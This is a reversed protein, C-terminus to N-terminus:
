RRGHDAGPRRAERHGGGRRARGRPGARLPGPGRARGGRGAGRHRGAGPGRPRPLCGARLGRRRPRPGRRAGGRLDPDPQVPAAPLHRHGPRRGRHGPGRRPRRGARHSPARLQGPGAGRRGRGQTGPPAPRRPLRGARPDGRGGPFRAGPLHRAGRHRQPRQPPRPCPAAGARHAGGGAGPPGASVEFGVTMGRPVVAGVRYDADAAEGYTRVRLPLDRAAEALARAGPDDACAVLLGGRAIRLAFAAFAAEIEALGAYNDLHDAEVCTVIAAEPSLMLFSGDSEDAEAVFLEGSGEDAGLGTETLIGGIVYSPDAGCDRLVTTLMSTTTTKGHTGAVAVARRGLMVSALAAARHLVRLGGERAAVLEPNDPRIATSVVLTDAGAVNAADHGVRIDAGLVALEDLLASGAADSGSVRVGRALMIRAIGSMGAGGIGTFHVRGLQDVPVPDVPTVLGMAGDEDAPPEHGAGRGPQSGGAAQGPQRRRLGRRGPRRSRDQARDRVIGLVEAALRADTDRHGMASAAQSMAAVLQADVLIPLLDSRIWEPTLDADAIILGGGAAEIPVANLRQEGNGHPLPVYAAPLGVATLEACTMAGSRCIAFDAAAYALDMRDVYPLTIYPPGATPLRVDIDSRPGLIHLVQIGAARISDAADLVAYNLSRAGQSGGTVLLVPLDPRLGFHARAKDALALRDLSAIEHRLPIGIYRAHPLKTDPQGTFVHTTFRAGLRNALGPRANAEHVVIPVHHRRAALYGPTAVYGGFGM